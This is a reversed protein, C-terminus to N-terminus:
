VISFIDIRKIVDISFHIRVVADDRTNWKVRFGSSTINSAEINSPPPLNLSREGSKEDLEYSVEM